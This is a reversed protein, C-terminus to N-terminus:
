RRFIFPALILLALVTLFVMIYCKWKQSSKQYKRTDELEKVGKSTCDNASRVHEEVCDLLEGQSDVLTAIDQFMQALEHISQELLLIDQHKDHVRQVEDLLM